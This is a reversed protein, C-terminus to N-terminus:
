GARVLKVRLVPARSAEIFPQFVGGGPTEPDKVGGPQQRTAAPNCGLKM